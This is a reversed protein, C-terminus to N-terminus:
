KLYAIYGILSGVMTLLTTIFLWMLTNLRTETTKSAYKNPLNELALLVKAEFGKREERDKEQSEKMYEIDKKM